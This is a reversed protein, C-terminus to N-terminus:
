LTITDGLEPIECDWDFEEKPPQSEEPLTAFSWEPKMPAKEAYLTHVKGLEGNRALNIAFIIIEDVFGLELQHDIPLFKELMGLDEIM